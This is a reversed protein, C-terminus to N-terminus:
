PKEKESDSKLRNVLEVVLAHERERSVLASLAIEYTARCLNRQSDVLALRALADRFRQREKDTM